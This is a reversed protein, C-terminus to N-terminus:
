MPALKRCRVGRRRADAARDPAGQGLTVPDAHVAADDLVQPNRGFRTERGIFRHPGFVDEVHQVGTEFHALVDGEGPEEHWEEVAEYVVVGVSGFILRENAEHPVEVLPEDLASGHLRFKM